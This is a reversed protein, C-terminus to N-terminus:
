LAGPCAPPPMSESQVIKASLPKLTKYNQCYVSKPPTYVGIPPKTCNQLTIVASLLELSNSSCFVELLLEACNCCNARLEACNQATRRLEATGACNRERTAATTHTHELSLLFLTQM